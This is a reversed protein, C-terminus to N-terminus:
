NNIRIRKLVHQHHVNYKSILLMALSLVYGIVLYFKINYRVIESLFMLIRLSATVRRQWMWEAELWAPCNAVRWKCFTFSFLFFMKGLLQKCNFRSLKSNSVLIYVV